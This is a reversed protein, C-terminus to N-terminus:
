NSLTYGCVQTMFAAVKFLSNRPANFVIGNAAEVPSLGMQLRAIFLADVLPNMVGDGDIDFCNAPAIPVGGTGTLAIVVTSPSVNAPLLGTCTLLATKVGLSTPRFAVPLIERGDPAITLANFLKAFMGADPGSISCAGSPLEVNLANDTATTLMSTRFAADGVRLTGFDLVAPAVTFQTPPPPSADLTLTALSVSGTDGGCRDSVELTWTGNIQATTLAAFTSLLSSPAAMSGVTPPGEVTAVYTGAPIPNTTTVSWINSAGVSEDVFTYPGYLDAAAGYSNGSTSGLRGFLTVAAGTPARLVARVDGAFTHSPTFQLTTRIDTLPAVMGNVSFTIARPTGWFGCTLPESIAGLGAGTFTTAAGAGASAVLGMFAAFLRSARVVSSGIFEM